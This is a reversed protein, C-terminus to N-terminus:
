ALALVATVTKGGPERDVQVRSCLRQVITWGYGGQRGLVPSLDKPVEPSADSVRLQLENGALRACFGTVAGAHLLANTILESVVLLADDRLQQARALSLGGCAEKLVSRVQMRADACSIDECEPEPATEVTGVAEVVTMVGDATADYM